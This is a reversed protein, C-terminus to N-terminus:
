FLKKKSKKPRNHKKKVRRKEAISKWDNRWLPRWRDFRSEDERVTKKDLEPPTIQGIQKIREEKSVKPTYKKIKAKKDGKKKKKKGM